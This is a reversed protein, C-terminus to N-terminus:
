REDYNDIMSQLQNADVVSKGDSMEMKTIFGLDKNDIYVDTRGNRTQENIQTQVRALTEEEIEKETVEMIKSLVNGLAKYEEQLKNIQEQIEKRREFLIKIDQKM